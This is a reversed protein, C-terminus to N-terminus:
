LLLLQEALQQWIVAIACAAALHDAAGALHLKILHCNSPNLPHLCVLGAIAAAPVGV